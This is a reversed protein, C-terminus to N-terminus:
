VLCFLYGDPFHTSMFCQDHSVLIVEHNLFLFERATINLDILGRSLSDAWIGSKVQFTDKRPAPHSPAMSSLKDLTNPNNMSKYPPEKSVPDSHSAFDGFPDSGELNNLPVAAFPDFINNNTSDPKSSNTESHSPPVSAAFFDVHSPFAPQGAFLDVNGQM